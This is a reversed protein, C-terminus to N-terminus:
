VAQSDEDPQTDGLGGYVQSGYPDSCTAGAGNADAGDYMQSEYMMTEPYNQSAQEPQELTPGLPHGEIQSETVSLTAPEAFISDDANKPMEPSADIDIAVQTDQKVDPSADFYQAPQQIFYAMGTAKPPIVPERPPSRPVRTISGPPTRPARPPPGRAIGLRPVNIPYSHPGAPPGCEVGEAQLQRVNENLRAYSEQVIVGDSKKEGLCGLRDKLVQAPGPNKPAADVKVEELRDKSKGGCRIGFLTWQVEDGNEDYWKHDDPISKGGELAGSGSAGNGSAVSGSAGPDKPGFLEVQPEPGDGCFANSRKIGVQAVEKDGSGSSKGGELAGSGSAVSGLAGSGSTLNQHVKELETAVKSLRAVEVQAKMKAHLGLWYQQSENEPSGDIGCPEVVGKDGEVEGGEVDSGEVNGGEVNGGEANEGEAKGGEGKGGEVNDGEVKDGEVNDGEVKDGEVNDGEVNEGEFAEAYANDREFQQRAKCHRSYLSEMSFLVDFFDAAVEVSEHKPVKPRRKMDMPFHALLDAAIDLM